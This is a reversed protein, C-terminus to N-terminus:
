SSWSYIGSISIMDQLDSLDLGLDLQFHEFAAGFGVACHFQAEGKGVLAQVIVNDLDSQV